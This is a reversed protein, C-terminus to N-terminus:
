NDGLIIAEDQLSQPITLGLTNATNMNIVLDTKELTEVPLENPKKGDLIAAAMLGTQFGLKYYNIGVTILAGNEVQSQESGIVPIKAALSKSTVIPMSSAVLNDTPIYLVDIQPLLVDLADSLETANTVGIPVITLGITVAEAQAQTLQISSNSENLNYIFGVKKANPVLENILAFQKDMPAADSTGTLNGTTNEVSDVLGSQVPDTVASFLVPINTGETVNRVAQASPTAIAMILDVKKSVLDEAILNTTAIDDQANSFIFDVLTDDYGKSALGDIFGQRCDDLAGHTGFQTVGIELKQDKKTCGVMIGILLVCMGLMWIKKGVM